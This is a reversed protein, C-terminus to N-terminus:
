LIVKMTKSGVKVFYLGGGPLAIRQEDGTVPLTLLKTGTATYVTISAGPEAGTITIGDVDTSIMLTAEESEPVSTMDIEEINEFDKWEDAAAYAAKSGIPVYLKCTITDAGYFGYAGVTPPTTNKVYIERVSYCESFAGLEISTVSSPIMISNLYYCTAFAVREISTVGEPITISSLAQCYIFAGDRISTVGEPITISALGECHSFAGNEITTVNSPIVYNRAKANPYAILTTKDKSFLVGDITSFNQNEEAVSFKTLRSCGSFVEIGISDYADGRYRISFNM